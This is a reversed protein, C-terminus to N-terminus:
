RKNIYIRSKDIEYTTSLDEKIAKIDIDTDQLNLNSLIEKKVPLKDGISIDVPEIELANSAGITIDIRSLSFINQDQTKDLTVNVSVDLDSTYKDIRSVIDEELRDKYLEMLFKEQNIELAKSQVNMTEFEADLQHIWLSKTFQSYDGTLKIIPQLIVLITILGIFFKTYKKLNGNPLVMDLLTALIVVAVISSIWQNIM